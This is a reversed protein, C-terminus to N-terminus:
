ATTLIQGSRLIERRVGFRTLSAGNIGIWRLFPLRMQIQSHEYLIVGDKEAILTLPMRNFRNEGFRFESRSKDGIVLRLPEPEEPRQAGFGERKGLPTTIDYPPKVEFPPPAAFIGTRNLHAQCYYVQSAPRPISTMGCAIQPGSRNNKKPQEPLLKYIEAAASDGFGIDIGKTDWAPVGVTTNSGLTVFSGTSTLYASCQFSEPSSREPAPVIGCEIEPGARRVTGAVEPLMEYIQQALTGQITLQLVPVVTIHSSVSSFSAAAISLFTAWVYRWKKLTM